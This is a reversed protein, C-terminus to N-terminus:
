QGTFFQSPDTLVNIQSQIIIGHKLSWALGNFRVREEEPRYLPRSTPCNSFSQQSM